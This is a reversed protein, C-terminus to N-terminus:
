LSEDLWEEVKSIAPWYKLLHLWNPGRKFQILVEKGERALQAAQDMVDSPDDCTFVTEGEVRIRFM